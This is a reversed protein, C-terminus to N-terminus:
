FYRNFVMDLGTGFFLIVSVFMNVKFFRRTAIATDNDRALKQQYLFICGVMIVGTWFFTSRGTILGAWFLMAISFVYSVASITLATKKGLRAPISHLNENIDFNMDQIAYVVDLGAIWFLIVLGLLFPIISFEGTVALYGGIPAAAEVLGLYFHSSSSFRKFYPYTFLLGVAAFSLRFCLDNLLKSALILILSSFIAIAWVSRATMDGSPILRGMTRPNKADIEADIVRNFSMGATRAATLAIVVLVWTSVTGGGAFLVGILAFPLAFLTQEIMILKSFKRFDM